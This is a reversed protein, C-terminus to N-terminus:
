AETGHKGLIKQVAPEAMLNLYDGLFLKVSSSKRREKQGMFKPTEALNADINGARVM